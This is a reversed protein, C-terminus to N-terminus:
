KTVKRRASLNTAFQMSRQDPFRAPERPTPFATRATLRGVVGGDVGALGRGVTYVILTDALFTNQWGQSLAKQRVNKRVHSAVLVQRGKPCLRPVPYARFERAFIKFCGGQPAGCSVPSRLYKSLLRRDDSQKSFGSLLQWKGYENRIAVFACRYTM